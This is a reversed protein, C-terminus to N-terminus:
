RGNDLEYTDESFNDPQWEAILPASKKIIYIVWKYTSAKDMEVASYLLIENLPANADKSDKSLYFINFVKNHYTIHWKGGITCEGKLIYDYFFMFGRDGNELELTPLAMNSSVVCRETIIMIKSLVGLDNIYLPKDKDEPTFFHIVPSDSYYEFSQPSCIIPSVISEIENVIAATNVYDETIGYIKHITLGFMRSEKVEEMRKVKKIDFGGLLLYIMLVKTTNSRKRYKGFRGEVDAM